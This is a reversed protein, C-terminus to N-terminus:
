GEFAVSLSTGVVAFDEGDNVVALARLLECGSVLAFDDEIVCGEVGFGTALDAIASPEVGIIVIGDDGFHFAAVRRNLAYACVLDDGFLWDADAVFDVGHDVGFDALGGHAVM